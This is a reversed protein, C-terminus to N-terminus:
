SQVFLCVGGGRMHLAPTNLCPSTLFSSPFSLLPVPPLPAFTFCVTHSGLAAPAVQHPARSRKPCRRGRFVAAAHAAGSSDVRCSHRPACDGCTCRHSVIVAVFFFVFVVAPVTIPVPITIPTNALCVGGRETPTASTLLSFCPILSVADCLWLCVCVVYVVCVVREFRAAFSCFSNSRKDHVSVRAYTRVYWQHHLGMSSQTTHRNACSPSSRAATESQCSSATGGLMLPRSRGTSCGTASQGSCRTTGSGKCCMSPCTITGPVVVVVVVIVPFQAPAMSSSSSSSSSSNNNNNNNNNNSNSNVASPSVM